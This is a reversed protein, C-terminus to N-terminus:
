HLHRVDRSVRLDEHGVSIGTQSNITPLQQNLPDDTVAARNRMDSRLQAQRTLASMAPHTPEALVAPRSQQVARRSRM